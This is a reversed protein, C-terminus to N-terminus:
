LASRKQLTHPRKRVRFSTHAPRGAAATTESPVALAGGEGQQMLAGKKLREGIRLLLFHESDVLAPM